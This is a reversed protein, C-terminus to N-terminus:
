SADCPKEGKSAPGSAALGDFILNLTRRLGERGLSEEPHCLAVEIAINLTGVVAWMADEVPVPRLEGARFGEDLITRVTAQFDRHIADFDFPPAGQPPGYYFAYMVRLLPLKASTLAYLEDCLTLIRERARGGGRGADSLMASFAAFADGMLALYIGEKNGFYYYLVPKTVGAAEVIERVTTSAYGKRDFLDLAAWLLRERAVADETGAAGDKRGM